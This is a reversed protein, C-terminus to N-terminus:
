MLTPYANTIEIRVPVGLLKRVEPLKAKAAEADKADPAYVDLVIEGTREDTGLGALTPYIRELADTNATMANVLEDITAKAGTEFVVPLRSGGLKHEQSAVPKTGTLLVRVRYVPQHEIAIGALRAKHTRRLQGILGGMESQIRLRRIAEEHSVGQDRAYSRADAAIAEDGTQVRPPQAALATALFAIILLRIM